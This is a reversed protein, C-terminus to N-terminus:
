KLSVIRFINWSSTAVAHQRKFYARDRYRVDVLGGHYGFDFDHYHIISECNKQEM